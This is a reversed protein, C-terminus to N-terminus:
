GRIMANVGFLLCQFVTGAIIIRLYTRAYPLVADGLHAEVASETGYNAGFLALIRDLYLLGLVTIAASTILLLTTANGLVQEADAKRQQGLRISILAAAGFGILMGFALVVLM